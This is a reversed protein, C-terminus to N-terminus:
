SDMCQFGLQEARVSPSVSMVFRATAKRFKAFAGLFQWNRFGWVEPAYCFVWIYVKVYQKIYRFRIIAHLISIHLKFHFLHQTKVRGTNTDFSLLFVTPHFGASIWPLLRHRNVTGLFATIASVNPRTECDCLCCGDCHCLGKDRSLGM